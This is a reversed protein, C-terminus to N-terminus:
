RHRTPLWGIDMCHSCSQGERASCESCAIWDGDQLMGGMTGCCRKRDYVKPCRENTTEVSYRVFGCITCQTVPTPKM